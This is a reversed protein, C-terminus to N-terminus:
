VRLAVLRTNLGGVACCGFVTVVEAGLGFSDLWSSALVKEIETKAAQKGPM